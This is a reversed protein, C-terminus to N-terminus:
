KPWQEQASLVQLRLKEAVAAYEILASKGSGPEGLVYLIKNGAKSLAERIRLIQTQDPVFPPMKGERAMQTVNTTFRQLAQEPTPKAELQMENKDRDVPQAHVRLSIFSLALAAALSSFFLMKACARIVFRTQM